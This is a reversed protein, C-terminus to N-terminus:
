RRVINPKEGKWWQCNRALIEDICAEECWSLLLGFSFNNVNLIEDICAEECWSLLLGFSFNNVNM